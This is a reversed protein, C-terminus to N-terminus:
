AGHWDVQHQRQAATLAEPKFFRDYFEVDVHTAQYGIATRYPASFVPFTGYRKYVYECYAVTAAIAREDPPKIEGTVRKPDQWASGAAAGDRYTGQPGFKHDVWAHVAAEMSPYYPPCYPKLLVDGDRELGLPIPIPMPRGILKLIRSLFYSGGFLLSAPAETMRFDLAEFWSYPHRAYNAFGGLGLAQTMLSLNQLMMGQEVSVSEKLSGELAAITFVRGDKPDDDLHGGKSKAFKGVGAPRFWNREDFAMLGMAPDFAELLVNITLGSMSNIPLFYSGGKAYLSWKNINFNEGPVVPPAARGDLIKVRSRQYLQALEGRQAMEILEAREAPAFDRPRKILYTAEDNSVVLSVANVSDPSAITRGVLGALMSGGEGEGYALDALAYGTVGSAAFVLAAEEEVALPQADLASEYTFPGEAIRMGAGFRRSRRGLLAALLPYQALKAGARKGNEEGAM